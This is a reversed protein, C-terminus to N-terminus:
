TSRLPQHQRTDFTALFINVTGSTNAGLSQKLTSFMLDALEEGGAISTDM